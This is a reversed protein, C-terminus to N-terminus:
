RVRDTGRRRGTRDPGVPEGALRRDDPKRLAKVSASGNADGADRLAKSMENRAVTFQQPPLGM